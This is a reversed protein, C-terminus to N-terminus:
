HARRITSQSGTSSHAANCTPFCGYGAQHEGVAAETLDPAGGTVNRTLSDCRAADTCRLNVCQGCAGPHQALRIGALHITFYPSIGALKCALAQTDNPRMTESFALSAMGQQWAQEPGAAAPDQLLRRRAASTAAGAHAGPAGGQAPRGQNSGTAAGTGMAAALCLGAAVAAAALLAKAVMQSAKQRQPLCATGSKLLRGQVLVCCPLRPETTFLAHGAGARPGALTSQLVLAHLHTM